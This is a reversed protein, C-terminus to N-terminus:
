LALDDNLMLLKWLAHILSGRGDATCIVRTSLRAILLTLTKEDNNKM